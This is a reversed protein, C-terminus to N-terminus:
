RANQQRHHEIWRMVDQRDWRRTKQSLMLAPRPFTPGKVLTDRVYAPRLRLMEAIDRTDILESM